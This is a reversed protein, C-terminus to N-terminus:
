VWMVRHRSILRGYSPNPKLDAGMSSRNDYINVAEMLIAAKIDADAADAGCVVAVRVPYAAEANLTPLSGVWEIRPQAGWEQMLRFSGAALVQDAGNADDYTVALSAVPCLPIVQGLGWATLHMTWTQTMICRGLLGGPGDLPDTAAAICMRVTELDESGDVRVYPLMEALSVPLITPPSTRVLKM